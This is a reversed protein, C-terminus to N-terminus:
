QYEFSSTCYNSVTDFKYLISNTGIFLFTFLRCFGTFCRNAFQRGARAVLSTQQRRMVGLALTPVSLLRSELSLQTVEDGPWAATPAYSWYSSLASWLIFVKLTTQRATRICCIFSRYELGTSSIQPSDYRWAFNTTHWSSDVRSPM